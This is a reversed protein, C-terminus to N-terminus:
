IRVVKKLKDVTVPKLLFNDFGVDVFRKEMEVDATVVDVPLKSLKPNARIAKVLGEGDMEPMWMDTLVQNFPASASDELKKMAEVGNSAMVIEFSGLKKLMVMLVMLNMKQDDVILIRRKVPAAATPAPTEQVPAAEPKRSGTAAIEPVIGIQEEAKQIAEDIAIDHEHVPVKDSVKVGPITVSFTSGKGPTSSISLEGGMIRALEKCLALGLGTGGNRSLKAGVQVYPAAITKM